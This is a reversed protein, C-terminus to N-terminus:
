VKLTKNETKIEHYNVIKQLSLLLQHMAEEGLIAQYEEQLGFVCVKSQNVFKEGAESLFILSARADEPHKEIRILGISTLEKVVKSMAQKTVKAKQAIENNTSGKSSINMIFPMYSMKFYPYGQRVFEQHAWDDFFRKWVNVLKGINFQTSPILKETNEIEQNSM